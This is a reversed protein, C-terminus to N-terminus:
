EEVTTTAAMVAKLESPFFIFLFLPPSYLYFLYLGKSKKPRQSWMLQSVVAQLEFELTDSARKHGGCAGASM